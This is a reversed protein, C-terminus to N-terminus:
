LRLRLDRAIEICATRFAEALHRLARKSGKPESRAKSNKRIHSSRGAM